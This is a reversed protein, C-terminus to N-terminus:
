THQNFKELPLRPTTQINSLSHQQPPQLLLQQTSPSQFNCGPVRLNMVQILPISLVLIQCRSRQTESDRNKGRQQIREMGDEAKSNQVGEQKSTGIRRKKMRGREECWAYRSTEPIAKRKESKATAEKTM